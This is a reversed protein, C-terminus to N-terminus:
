DLEVLQLILMQMHDNAIEVRHRCSILTKKHTCMSDKVDRVTFQAVGKREGSKGVVNPAVLFSMIGVLTKFINLLIMYVTVSCRAGLVEKLHNM